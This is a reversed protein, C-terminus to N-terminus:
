STGLTSSISHARRYRACASAPYACPNVIRDCMSMVCSEISPLRGSGRQRPLSSCCDDTWCFSRPLALQTLDM